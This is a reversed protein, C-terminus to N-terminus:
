TQDGQGEKSDESWKALREEEMLLSLVELKEADCLKSSSVVAIEARHFLESKKM